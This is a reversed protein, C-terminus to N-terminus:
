VCPPEGVTFVTFCHFCHFCKLHWLANANHCQIILLPSLHPILLPTQPSSCPASRPLPPSFGGGGGGGGVWPPVGGGGGPAPTPSQHTANYDDGSWM